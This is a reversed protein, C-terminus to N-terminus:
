KKILANLKGILDHEIDASSRDQKNDVEIKDTWLGLNKGVLELSKVRVSDTINEDKSFALLDQIIQEGLSVTQMRQLSDKQDLLRNITLTINVDARLKSSMARLSNGKIDKSVNYNNRYADVLTMGKKGGTGVIDKCFGLQKATLEVGVASTRKTKDQNSKGGNLLKLNPKNDKKDTM